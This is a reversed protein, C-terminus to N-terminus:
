DRDTEWDKFSREEGAKLVRGNQNVCLNSLHGRKNVSEIRMKIHELHKPPVDHQLYSRRLRLWAYYEDEPRGNWERHFDSDIEERYGPRSYYKVVRAMFYSFPVALIVAALEFIAYEIM